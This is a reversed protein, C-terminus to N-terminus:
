AAGGLADYVEGAVPLELDLETLAELLAGMESGLTLISVDLGGYPPTPFRRALAEALREHVRGAQERDTCPLLVACRNPELAFVSDSKRLVDNAVTRVNKALLTGEDAGDRSGTILVLHTSHRHRLALGLEIRLRRYFETKRGLPVEAPLHVPLELPLPVLSQQQFREHLRDLLGQADPAKADLAEIAFRLGGFCVDRGDELRDRWRQLV